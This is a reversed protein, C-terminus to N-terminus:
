QERDRGVFGAEGGVTGQGERGVRGRWRGQREM